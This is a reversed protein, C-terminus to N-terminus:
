EVAVLHAFAGSYCQSMLMVVRVGPRLMRLLERLESVSLSEKAGWLTISNNLPDEANKQGHDTVYLLLTDRRGLARHARKFWRRLNEKTAAQLEVGPVSSNAHTIPTALQHELRTGRLLWFEAEPQVERVALDEAPDAGDGSFVSVQDPRIGAHRLVDLLQQVHLLHSQYNMAKSGGGNLMLVHLHGLVEDVRTAGPREAPLPQRRCGVAVFLGLALALWARRGSGLM